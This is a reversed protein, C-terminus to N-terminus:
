QWGLVAAGTPSCCGCPVADSCSKNPVHKEDNLLKSLASHISHHEPVDGRARRETGAGLSAILGLVCSGARGKENRLGLVLPHLGAGLPQSHEAGRMRCGLPLILNPLLASAAAPDAGSLPFNGHEQAARREKHTWQPVLLFLLPNPLCTEFYVVRVLSHISRGPLM